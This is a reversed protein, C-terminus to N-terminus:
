LLVGKDLPKPGPAGFSQALIGPGRPM